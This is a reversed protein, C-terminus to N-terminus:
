TGNELARPTFQGDGIPATARIESFRISTTKGTVLNKMELRQVMWKHAAPDAELPESAVLKKLAKGGEDFFEAATLLHNDTRIWDKRRAYGERSKVAETAPTSEVVDCTAGGCPEEALWRYTFDSVPHGLIDSYSFESAMFSGSQATSEVRRIKKYAPLYLLVDPDSDPHQLFLIGEGKIEAPSHFRTLLRYHVGDADLKRWWTFRKIAATDAAGARTELVAQAQIHGLSQASENAKMIALADKAAHATGASFFLLWLFATREIM